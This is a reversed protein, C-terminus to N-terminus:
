KGKDLDFKVKQGDELKSVGATVLYDGDNVGDLIELGDEALEGITVSKRQAVGLGSDSPSVVFIFRGERDEGVAFPPVVFREHSHTSAFTFAVEAAMGSRIDPDTEQFRVTVPYTTAFGTSAVGVENVAAKFNKGGLAAITVTAPDGRKIQSILIEPIAVDVELRSGSTLVIVVQGTQVNENEDIRVEAIAGSAPATLKAYELQRDALDRRRKQVNDQEHASEYAARAADLESKSANRNEYLAQVREYSAKAQIEMARAQDRAADAEKTKLEYDTPDLQALLQGARVQDGVKVAVRQVTGPVKFSLNSETGSRVVGSFTRMRSGGTSFIQQYRVPRIVEEPVQQENGCSIFLLAISLISSISFVKNFCKM